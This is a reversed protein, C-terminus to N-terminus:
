AQSARVGPGEGLHSPHGDSLVLDNLTRLSNRAEMLCFYLIIARLSSEATKRTSKAFGQAQAMKAATMLQCLSQNKAYTLYFSVM